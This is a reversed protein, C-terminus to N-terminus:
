NEESQRMYKDWAERMYSVLKPIGHKLECLHLYDYRHEGNEDEELWVEIEEWSGNDYLLALELEDDDHIWGIRFGETNSIYIDIYRLQVKNEWYKNRGLSYQINDSIDSFQKNVETEVELMLKEYEQSLVHKREEIEDKLLWIHDNVNTTFAWTVEGKTHFDYVTELTKLSQSALDRMKDLVEKMTMIIM